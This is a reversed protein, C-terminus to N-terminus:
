ARALARRGSPHWAFAETSEVHAQRKSPLPNLINLIVEAPKLSLMMHPLTHISPIYCGSYKYKAHFLQKNLFFILTDFLFCNVM